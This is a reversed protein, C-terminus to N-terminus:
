EILFGGGGYEDEDDDQVMDFEETVDSEADEMMEDWDDAAQGAEDDDADDSEDVIVRKGKGKGKGKGRDVVEGIRREEALVEGESAGAWVRERIRLAKLWRSWMRVARAARREREAEAEADALGEVVARVAEESEAPVVVGRLVATGHRGRFSFGTLAPAYDVGLIFAARAAREDLLYAGGEPVMSPVYVDLNGFKNKPVRGGAVPPARYLETQETTFLPTGNVDGPGAGSGLVPDVDDDDDPGDDDDFLGRRRVARKPLWKVPIELPKVVRGLRYWKDASRAIRVDRRRYIRELPAKSGASVTGVFHADPALVEHRRLHRELAYVPHDKFDAVNRPMPERAEAALLENNEIQDLDTPIRRTYLRLARRLWRDPALPPDPGSGPPPSPANSSPLGDIRWKRTKSNYAKSYRRTVDKASGDEEFAIVYSLCNARDSAPPELKAPKWQTETVLPDVPQWKQHAEDLVEVWYVPYPSENRIRKSSTDQAHSTSPSPQTPSAISPINYGTANPHGLRRRPPTMSTSASVPDPQSATQYLKAFRDRDEAAKALKASLKSQRPRPLTPAGPVFSLPQLSCVLRAEVGAARLLACFLQAGVDRSGQLTTAAKRFDARELTSEMDNPLEYEELHKEDEAWLARKLGRETIAFRLKFANSAQQVGNKLSETQGFQPLSKRPNLYTVMKDTLLSQLSEQVVQDNCWHNRRAAHALLCLLHMKHVEIRREKEEKTLPKRKEVTRRPTTAAQHSTLNLELVKPPGDDAPLEDVALDIDEFQIDEDDEDESDLEATQIVPEPIVIDEFEIDEEDPDDGDTQSPVETAAEAQTVQQASLVPPITPAEENQPQEVKPKQGPRKLRKPPPEQGEASRTARSPGAESLMERYVDPVDDQKSGRKSRSASSSGRLGIAARNSIGSAAANRRKPAM